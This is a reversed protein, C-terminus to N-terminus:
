AFLKLASYLTLVVPILIPLKLQDNFILSLIKWVSILKFFEPMKEGKYLNSPLYREVPTISFSM